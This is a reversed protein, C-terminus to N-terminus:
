RAVRVKFTRTVRTVKSGKKAPAIRLSLRVSVQRVRKFRARAAKPVTLRLAKARRAVVTVTVPRIVTRRGGATLTAEIRVKSLAPVTLTGLGLQGTARRLVATGVKLVGAAPTRPPTDCPSGAACPDPRPKPPADFGPFCTDSLSAAPPTGGGQSWVATAPSLDSNGAADVACVLLKHPGDALGELRLPSTCPEPWRGDTRCTFRSGAESAAFAISATPASTAAPPALDVRTDPPTRDETITFTATATATGTPATVIVPGTRAGSPVSVLLAEGDRTWATADVGGFSVATAKALGAGDIRVMQGPAGSAPAPPGAVPAASCDADGLAEFTPANRVYSKGDQSRTWSGVILAAGYCGEGLEIRRSTYRASFTEGPQTNSLEWSTPYEWNGSLDFQFGGPLYRGILEGRVLKIEEAVESDAFTKGDKAYPEGFRVYADATAPLRPATTFSTAATRQVAGCERATSMTALATYTAGALLPKAPVIIARSAPAQIPQGGPGLMASRCISGLDKGDVDDHWLLVHEGARYPGTPNPTLGAEFAPITPGEAASLAVDVGTAGDRPVSYMRPAAAVPRQGAADAFASRMCSQTIREGNVVDTREAVGVRVALPHLFFYLHGPARFFPRGGNMLSYGLISDGAAEKGLDSYGPRGPLETHPDELKALGGNALLYEVHAACSASLRADVAMAPIGRATRYANVEAALQDTPVPPDAYAAQTGGLALTLGTLVLLAAAGLRVRVLMGAGM